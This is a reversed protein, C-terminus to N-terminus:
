DGNETKGREVEERKEQKKSDALAEQIIRRVKTRKKQEPSRAM